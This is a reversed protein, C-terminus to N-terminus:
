EYQLVSFLPSTQLNFTCEILISAKLEASLIKVVLYSETNTLLIQM